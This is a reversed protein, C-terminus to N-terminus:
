PAGASTLPGKSLFSEPWERMWAPNIRQNVRNWSYPGPFEEVMVGAEMPVCESFAHRGPEIQDGEAPLENWLFKFPEERGANGRFRQILSTFTSTMTGIFDRSRAAVLQSLFALTVSDTTPLARFESPYHELIHDDIFVSQPYHRELGDFFPDHRDDTLVALPDGRSFSQDMVALAHDLRRDLTTVGLTVKFDGRRIHVANFEGLDAAIVGALERFGAKPRTQRLVEHVAQREAEGLYLLYSYFSLNHLKFRDQGIEPGGSLALVPAAAASGHHRM